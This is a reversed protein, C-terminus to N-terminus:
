EAGVVVHEVVVAEAIIALLAPLLIQVALFAEVIRKLDPEFLCEGTGVRDGDDLRRAAQVVAAAFPSLGSFNSGNRRTM